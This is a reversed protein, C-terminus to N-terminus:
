RADSAFFYEVEPHQGLPTFTSTDDEEGHYTPLYGAGGRMELLVVRSNIAILAQALLVNDNAIPMM